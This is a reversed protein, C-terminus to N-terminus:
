AGGRFIDEFITLYLCVSTTLCFYGSFYIVSYLCRRRCISSTCENSPSMKGKTDLDFLELYVVSAASTDTEVFM